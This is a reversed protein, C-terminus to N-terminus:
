KKNSLWNVVRDRVAQPLKHGDKSWRGLTSLSVGVEDCLKESLEKDKLVERILKAFDEKTM